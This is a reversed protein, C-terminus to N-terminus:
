ALLKLLYDSLRHALAIITLTPTDNGATPFVSSGAVFLNEVGHVRCDADVVGKTSDADMRTTGMHHWTWMPRDLAEWEDPAVDLMGLGSRAFEKQLIAITRRFSNLTGASLRWELSALPLGFRDKKASLSVRSDELPEPELFHHLRFSRALGRPRALHMATTWSMSRKLLRSLDLQAEGEIVQDRYALMSRRLAELTQANQGPYQPEIWARHNLLGERRQMQLPLTLGQVLYGLRNRLGLFGDIRQRRAVRIRDLMSLASRIKGSAPYLTGITFRPHDMFYRGILGSPRNAVHNSALLIRSNEIGGAALVFYRAVIRFRRGQADACLAASIQMGTPDYELNLLTVQTLVQISKSQELPVRLTKGLRNNRCLELSDTCILPSSEPFLHQRRALRVVDSIGLTTAARCYYPALHTIGFPWGSHKIWPREEFDLWDLPKCLGGWGYAQTSGGFGKLRSTSLPAYFLATDSQIGTESASPLKNMGGSELVGISHRGSLFNSALALGSAGAGTICIDFNLEPPLDAGVTIAM